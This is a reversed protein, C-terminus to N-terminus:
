FRAPENLCLFIAFNLELEVTCLYQSLRLGYALWCVMCLIFDVCKALLYLNNYVKAKM